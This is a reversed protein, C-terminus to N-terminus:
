RRLTIELQAGVLRVTVRTLDPVILDAPELEEAGHTTALGLLRM